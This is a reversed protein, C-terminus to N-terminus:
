GDQAGEREDAAADRRNAVADRHDATQDRRNAVADRHDATQDRRNAVADRHDATQDRRTAAARPAGGVEPVPAPAPVDGLVPSAAPPGLARTRADGTGLWVALAQADLPRSLLYGQMYDCGMQRLLALQEVTEVGEAVARIGVAHALAITSAVITTDAHNTGLGAVFSQDIKIRDVPFHRLYLLSSYGTGFDDLDLQIGLTKIAALTLAADELDVMLATETIEITLASPACGSDRLAGALMGVLGPDGLQRASVNISVSLPTSRPARLTVATECATRAVWAGLAVIQGTREAVDIFSAPGLLGTGPREWRVLAEVGTITDHALDMMPQYHLRLEDHAIGHSLDAHLQAMDPHHMSDSHWAVRDRGAGKADRLASMAAPLLDAVAQVDAASTISGVALGMRAALRIQHGDVDFPERLRTIVADSLQTLAAGADAADVVWVFVDPRWRGLYAAGTPAILRRALERLVAAGTRPGYAEQVLGLADVELAAVGRSLRAPLPDALRTQLAGRDPLDSLAAPEPHPLPHGPLGRQRPARPPAARDRNSTVAIASTPWDPTRVGIAPGPLGHPQGTEHRRIGRIGGSAQPHPVGRPV